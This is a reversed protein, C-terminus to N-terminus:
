VDTLSIIFGNLKFKCTGHGLVDCYTNSGTYVGFDMKRSRKLISLYRKIVAYIDQQQLMSQGHNQKQNRKLMRRVKRKKTKILVNHNIIVNIGVDSTTNM